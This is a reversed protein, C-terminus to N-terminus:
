VVKILQEHLTGAEIAPVLEGDMIGHIYSPGVLTYLASECPEKQVERIIVPVSLGRGICIIDGLKAVSPVLGFYGSNSTAFTYGYLKDHLNDFVFSWRDSLGKPDRFHMPSPQRDRGSWWLYQDEFLWMEHPLIRRGIIDGEDGLLTRWFASTAPEKTASYISTDLDEPEWLTHNWHDGKKGSLPPNVHSITDVIVGSISLIDNKDIVPPDKLHERKGMANYGLVWEGKYEFELSEKQFPGMFDKKKSFDPVWSPLDFSSPRYSRYASCIINLSPKSTWGPNSVDAIMAKTAEVYVQHVSKSYDVTISEPCSALGLLAYIMDRPDTSDRGSNALVLTRLSTGNRTYGAHLENIQTHNRLTCLSRALKTMDALELDEQVVKSFKANATFMNHLSDWTISRNGCLLRALHPYTIEQVIWMRSWWNRNQFLDRLAQWEEMSLNEPDRLKDLDRPQLYEREGDQHHLDRPKWIMENEAGGISEVTDFALDSNHNREGLWALVCSANRYIQSMRQVQTNREEVNSQDICIADIWLTRRQNKHRLHRLAVQLNAGVRFTKGNVYIKERAPSTGWTYSLAEYVPHTGFPHTFTIFVSWQPLHEVYDHIIECHIDSDFEGPLISVLRIMDWDNKAKTGGTGYEEYYKAITMTYTNHSKRSIDSDEKEERPNRSDSTAEIESEPDQQFFIANDDAPPM